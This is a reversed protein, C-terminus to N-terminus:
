VNTVESILIITYTFQIATAGDRETQRRVDWLQQRSDAYGAGKGRGADSYCATKNRRVKLYKMKVHLNSLIKIGYFINLFNNLM